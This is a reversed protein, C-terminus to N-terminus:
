HPITYYSFSYRPVEDADAEASTAARAAEVVHQMRARDLELMAGPDVSISARRLMTSVRPRPRPSPASVDASAAGAGDGSPLSAAVNAPEPRSLRDADMMGRDMSISARRLIRSAIRPRPSMDPGPAPRAAAREPTSESRARQRRAEAPSIPAPTLERKEVEDVRGSETDGGPREAPGSLGERGCPSSCLGCIVTGGANYTECEKCFWQGAEKALPPAQEPEPEPASNPPMARSFDPSLDQGVDAGEDESSSFVGSAVEFGAEM